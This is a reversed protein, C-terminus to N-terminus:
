SGRPFFLTWLSRSRLRFSRPYCCLLMLASRRLMQFYLSNGWRGSSVVSPTVMSISLLPLSFGSMNSSAWRIIPPLYFRPFMMKQAFPASSLAIRLMAAASSDHGMGVSLIIGDGVVVPMNWDM